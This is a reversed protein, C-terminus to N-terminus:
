EPRPLRPSTGHVGPVAVAGDDGGVVDALADIALDNRVGVNGAPTSAAGGGVVRGSAEGPGIVRVRVACARAAVGESPSLLADGRGHVVGGALDTRRDADGEPTRDVAAVVAGREGVRDGLEGGVRGLGYAARCGGAEVDGVPEAGPAVARASPTLDANM